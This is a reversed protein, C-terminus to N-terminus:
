KRRQKQAIASNNKQVVAVSTEASVVQVRAMVTGNDSLVLDGGLVQVQAPPQPRYGHANLRNADPMRLSVPITRGDPLPVYAEPTDGEGFISVQPSNAIGGMAYARRPLAHAGDASVVNGNASFIAKFGSFLGGLLGSGSGGAFPGENFLAAQLAARALMKAVNQLVDAFNEGELIADLLGDKLNQVTGTLFEDREAAIEKARNLREQTEVYRGAAEAQEEIAERYTRNTGAMVEDLDIGRRKADNMMEFRTIAEAQEAATKGILSLELERREATEQLSENYDERAKAEDRLKRAAEDEATKDTGAKEPDARPIVQTGLARQIIAGDINRLGEWENRYGEVGQGRRGRVLEMALRDQMEPSFLEDGTLGLDRMLGELTKGVIQYRGLASSGKGNGYIARNEPTRMQKQLALIERLTMSVLNRDGGTWRGYDLTENYGRGKDTGEAYGILDLIGRSAAESANRAHTVRDSHSRTRGYEGYVDALAHGEAMREKIIGLREIVGDFMGILSAVAGQLTDLDEADLDEINERANEIQDKFSKAMEGATDLEASGFDGNPGDLLSLLDDLANEMADLRGKAGDASDQFSALETEALRLAEAFQGIEARDGREIARGLAATAEDRAKILATLKASNEKYNALAKRDAEAQAEAEAKAADTAGERTKSIEDRLRAEEIGANRLDELFKLQKDTLRDQAMLYERAAAIPDGGSLANVERQLTHLPAGYREGRAIRGLERRVLIERADRELSTETEALADLADARQEDRITRQLTLLEENSDIREQIAAKELRATMEAAEAQDKIAQEIDRNVEELREGDSALEDQIRGIKESSGELGEIATGLEAVRDASTKVNRSLALFATGAAFIALGIPGGFIAMGTRLGRLAYATATARVGLLQVARGAVTTGISFASLATTAAALGRAGALTLALEAVMRLAKGLTEGAEANELMWAAMKQQMGALADAAGLGESVGGAVALLGTRMAETAEAVTMKFEGFRAKSTSELDELAQVMVDRTLKGQSGLDRLEEVTGGAAKAIAELLEFPAAERLSRLEDGQLVGSQLAQGFQLAVSARANGDLGGITLLRNLTGVQRITQELPQNQLSKQMRTLLGVTAEIPTRTEVALAFIQDKTEKGAAGIGRMQNELGRAEDGLRIIGAVAATAGLAVATNRLALLATNTREARTEVEQFGVRSKRQFREVSRDMTDIKRQFPSIAADFKAIM